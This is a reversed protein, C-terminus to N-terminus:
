GGVNLHLLTQEAVGAANKYVGMYNDLLTLYAIINMELLQFIPFRRFLFSASSKEGM